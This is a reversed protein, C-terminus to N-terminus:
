RNSSSSSAGASQCANIAQITLEVSRASGDPDYTNPKDPADVLIRDADVGKAVLENKIKEARQNSLLTGSQTVDNEYVQGALHITFNKSKHAAYFDAVEQIDQAANDPNDYATSDPKFFYFDDLFERYKVKYDNDTIDSGGEAHTLTAVDKDSLCVETTPTSTDNSTTPEPSSAANGPVLALEKTDYVFGDLYWKGDEKIFETRASIYDGARLVFLAYYKNDKNTSEKYSYSGKVKEAAATLFAKDEDDGGNKVYTMAAPIDGTTMAKMFGNARSKAQLSALLPLGVFFVLLALVVTIIGGIIFLKQKGGSSSSTANYSNPPLPATPASPTPPNVATPQAPPSAPVAGPAPAPTVPQETTPPVVPSTPNM